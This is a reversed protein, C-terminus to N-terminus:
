CLIPENLRLFVSCVYLLNRLALRCRRPGKRRHQWMTGPILIGNNAAGGSMALGESVSMRSVKDSQSARARALLREGEWIVTTPGYFRRSCHRTQEHQDEVSKQRGTHSAKNMEGNRRADLTVSPCTPIRTAKTGPQHFPNRKCSM